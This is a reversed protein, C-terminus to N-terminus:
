DPRQIPKMQRCQIRQAAMSAFGHPQRAIVIPHDSARLREANWEGHQSPGERQDPAAADKHEPRM